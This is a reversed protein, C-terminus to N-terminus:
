KFSDLGRQPRGGALGDESVADFAGSPAARGRSHLEVRISASDFFGGVIVERRMDHFPCAFRGIHRSVPNRVRPRRHHGRPQRCEGVAEGRGLPGWGCDGCMEPHRPNQPEKSNSLLWAFGIHAGKYVFEVEVAWDFPGQPQEELEVM